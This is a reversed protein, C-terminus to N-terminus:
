TLGLSRATKVQNVLDFKTLQDVPLDAAKSGQRRIEEKLSTGRAYSRGFPRALEWLPIPSSAQTASCDLRRHTTALSQSWLLSNTAARRADSQGCSGRAIMISLRRPPDGISNPRSSRRRWGRTSRASAVLP